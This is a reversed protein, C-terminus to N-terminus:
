VSRKLLVVPWAILDGQKLSVKRRKASADLSLEVRVGRALIYEGIMTCWYRPPLEMGAERLYSVDYKANHAVLIDAERLAAQLRDPSDPKQGMQQLSNHYFVSHHDDGCVMTDLDVFRWNVTVIRNDPNFPSGDTVEKGERKVKTELDLVIAKM